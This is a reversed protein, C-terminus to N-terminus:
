DEWPVERILVAEGSEAHPRFGAPGPFGRVWVIEDGSVVVPWVKREEGTIHREQLLEKIKKPAKTHVPWYRDGPRWNRVALEKSVLSPNLLHDSEIGAIEPGPKVRMAEVVVGVEPVIARGPLPLPYEYDVPIREQSRLDPTLFTLAEPERVLKWGLPLSLQKGSNTEEAAFHLIEEVHRFKLPFGALDGVAKLARRQVAQPESLLWALDVTANMVLPGPEQLREKLEPNFPTLQVLDQSDPSRAWDPEYWHIATGMWGSIENEWYDEEGRAIEALEALGEAISPNFEREFLPLLLQRVRNRTFRADRNSSDERWSQGLDNLCHELERRRLGLLPRIVQGVAEDYDNLLEVTPYIGGLGRMGTGRIIRMLVTEAQDDLTHGTAIKDLRPLTDAKPDDPDSQLLKRFFGYRLERAATELSQRMASAAAAVDTSELHFELNHKRALETVFNEDQDSEAARLRHNFHVVSLVIGIESRLELFIRLLAVSDSGGSVALGVRDGAKLLERRRVSDLVKKVFPHVAGYYLWFWTPRGGRGDSPSM